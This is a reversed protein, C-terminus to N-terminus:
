LRALVKTGENKIPDEENMCTLLVVIIDQVLELNPVIQGCVASYVTRSHKFFDWLCVAAKSFNELYRNKDHKNVYGLQTVM